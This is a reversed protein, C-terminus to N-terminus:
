DIRLSDPLISQDAFVRRQMLQEPQRRWALAPQHLTAQFSAGIQEFPLGVFCNDRGRTASFTADKGFLCVVVEKRPLADREYKCMQM